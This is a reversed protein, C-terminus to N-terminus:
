NSQAYAVVNDGGGASEPNMAQSNNMWDGGLARYLSIVSDMLSAQCQVYQLEYALKGTQSDLLRQFDIKGSHYQEESLTYALSYADKAERLTELRSRENVYSVLANDVEEAANLVTEEYTAILEQQTFQKAIVNFRYRGFNLINWRFSPGVSAVISDSNFM